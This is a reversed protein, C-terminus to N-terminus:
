GRDPAGAALSVPRRRGSLPCQLRRGPQGARQGAVYPGAQLPACDAFLATVPGSGPSPPRVLVIDTAAALFLAQGLRNVALGAAVSVVPAQRTSVGPTEQVELGCAVGEGLAQGLYQHAQKNAVQDQSLDEASLLRGNFFNISRLGGSLLPQQLQITM